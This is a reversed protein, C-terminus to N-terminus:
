ASCSSALNFPEPCSGFSTEAPQPSYGGAKGTGLRDGIQKGEDDVEIHFNEVTKLNQTKKLEAGIAHIHLKADAFAVKVDTLESILEAM